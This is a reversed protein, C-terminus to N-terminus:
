ALYGWWGDRLHIAWSAHRLVPMGLILEFPPDDERALGALDAVAAVSPAFRRGGISMDPLVVLPTKNTVGSSDTGSAEGAAAFREPHRSVVGRDVVSISAGSDWIAPWTGGAWAVDVYPHARSSQVLSREEDVPSDDDLVLRAEDFRFDLRHHRLVDLGLIPPADPHAEVDFVAPKVVLDGIRLTRAAVREISGNRSFVGGGGGHRPALRELADTLAGRPLGSRAGGTDVILPHPHGDIEANVRVLIADALDPDEDLDLALDIPM